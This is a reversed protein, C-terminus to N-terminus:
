LSLLAAHSVNKIQGAPLDSAGTLLLISVGYFSFVCLGKLGAGLPKLYEAEIQYDTGRLNSRIVNWGSLDLIDTV